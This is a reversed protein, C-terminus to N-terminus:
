GRANVRSGNGCTILTCRQLAREGPPHRRRRDSLGELRRFRNQMKLRAKEVVVRVVAVSDCKAKKQIMRRMQGLRHKRVDAERPTKKQDQSRIRCVSPNRVRHGLM